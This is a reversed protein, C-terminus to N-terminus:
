RQEGSIQLAEGELVELVRKRDYGDLLTLALKLADDRRRDIRHRRSRNPKIGHRKAITYITGHVIGCAKVIDAVPEGAECRRVVDREIDASSRETSM